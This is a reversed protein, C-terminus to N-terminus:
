GILAALEKPSGLVIQAGAAELVRKDAAFDHGPAGVGSAVMGAARAARMDDGTDGLYAMRSKPVADLGLLGAAHTLPFPHPKGKDGQQEMAVVVPLHAQWM